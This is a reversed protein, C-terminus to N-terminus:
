SQPFAGLQQFLGFFDSNVWTATLRGGAAHFVDAGVVTVRRHTPQINLFVGDHTGTALWRVAARDGEAITEAVTYELDPFGARFGGVLSLLAAAGRISAPFAPHHVTFDVALIDEATAARKGNLIDTFFRRVLDTTSPSGTSPTPM